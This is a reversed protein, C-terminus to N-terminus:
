KAALSTDLQRLYPVAQLLHYAANGPVAGFDGSKGLAELEELLSTVPEVLSKVPDPTEDDDSDDEKRSREERAKPKTEPEPAPAPPAPPTNNTAVPIEPAPAAPAPPADQAMAPFVLGLVALLLTILTTKM